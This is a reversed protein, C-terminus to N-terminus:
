TWSEAEYREGRTGLDWPETLAVSCGDVDQGNNSNGPDAHGIIFTEKGKTDKEVFMHKSLVEDIM